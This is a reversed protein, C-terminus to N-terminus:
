LGVNKYLDNLEQGTIERWKGPKLDGLLINIVRIRKLSVVNYGLEKWMRRVQRNLGQTLVMTVTAYDTRRIKCPKTTVKLEPLYIGKRLTEIDDDNIRKNLTVVYEKEHNNVAKMAKNIFEGDNTLLLLGESDRDLRGAYTLRTGYNIMDTVLVKAHEDKESVTVGVPKNFALIVKKECANVVKGDVAIIDNDLAKEGMSAICGNITVRGAEILKDAERRSCVGCQALYKNLRVPSTKDM